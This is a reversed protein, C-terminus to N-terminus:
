QEETKIGANLLEFFVEKCALAAGAHHARYEAATPATSAIVAGDRLMAPPEHGADTLEAHKDRLTHLVAHMLDSNAHEHLLRAIDDPSLPKLPIQHLFPANM